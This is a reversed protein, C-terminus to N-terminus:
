DPSEVRWMPGHGPRTTNQDQQATERLGDPLQYEDGTTLIQGPERTHEKGQHRRSERQQCPRSQTDQQPKLPPALHSQDPIPNSGDDQDDDTGHDHAREPHPDRPAPEQREQTQGADGVQHQTKDQNRACQPKPV